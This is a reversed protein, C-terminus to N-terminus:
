LTSSPSVTSMSLTTERWESPPLRAGGDTRERDTGSQKWIWERPVAADDTNDATESRSATTTSGHLQRAASAAATTTTTTAPLAPRYTHYRAHAQPNDFRAAGLLRTRLDVFTLSATIDAASIKDM